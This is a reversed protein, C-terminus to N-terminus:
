RFLDAAGAQDVFLVEDFHDVDRRTARTCSSEGVFMAFVVTRTVPALRPMPCASTSSARLLPALRTYAPVRRGRAWGSPRTVGRVRSTVFAACIWPATSCTSDRSRRM